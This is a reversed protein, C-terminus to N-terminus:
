RGRFLRDFRTTKRICAISYKAICADRPKALVAIHREDTRIRKQM